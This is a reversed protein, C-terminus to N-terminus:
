PTDKLADPTNPKSSGEPTYQTVYLAEIEVEDAFLEAPGPPPAEEGEPPAPRARLWLHHLGAPKHSGGEPPAAAKTIIGSRYALGAAGGGSEDFTAQLTERVDQEDEWARGLLSTRFRDRGIGRAKKFSRQIEFTSPPKAGLDQFKSRLVFYGDIAGEDTWALLFGRQPAEGEDRRLLSIRSLLGGLLLDADLVRQFRQPIDALLEGETRGNLYEDDPRFPYPWQVTEGGPKVTLEFLFHTPVNNQVKAQPPDTVLRVKLRPTREPLQASGAPADVKFNLFGIRRDLAQALTAQMGRQFDGLRESGISSRYAAAELSFEVAVTPRWQAGATPAAGLLAILVHFRLRHTMTNSASRAAVPRGRRPRGAPRRLRAPLGPDGRRHRHLAHGRHPGQEGFPLQLPVLGELLDGTQIDEVLPVLTPNLWDDLVEAGAADDAPMNAARLQREWASTWTEPLPRPHGFLMSGSHESTRASGLLTRRGDQEVRFLEVVGEKITGHELVPVRVLMSPTPELDDPVRVQRGTGPYLHFSLPRYGEVELVFPRGFPTTLRTSTIVEGESLSRVGRLEEARRQKATQLEFAEKRIADWEARMREVLSRADPEAAERAAADAREAALIEREREREEEQIEEAQELILDIWGPDEARLVVVPQGQVEAGIVTVTSVFLSAVVAVVSLTSIVPTSLTWSAFARFALKIESDLESKFFPLLRRLIPVGLAVSTSTAAIGELSLQLHRQLWTALLVLVGFLVPVRVALHPPLEAQIRKQLEDGLQELTAPQGTAAQGDGARANM